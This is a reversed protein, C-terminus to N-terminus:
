LGEFVSDLDSLEKETMESEYFAEESELDYGFVSMPNEKVSEEVPAEEKKDGKKNAAKAEEKLEGKPFPLASYLSGVFGSIKGGLWKLCDLIKKLANIAKESLKSIAGKEKPEGEHYVRNETVKADAVNKAFGAVAVTMKLKKIADQVKPQIEGNLTKLWDIIQNRKVVVTAGGAVAGFSAVLPGWASAVDAVSEYNGAKIKDVSGSIVGWLKKFINIKDLFSKDLKVEEEPLQNVKEGTKGFKSTIFNAIKSFLSGVANVISALVGQKKQAAEEAAEKYLMELDDYTGGEAFVKAEAVLMNANMTGEVAEFLVNLKAFQADSEAVIIAAEREAGTLYENYLDMM